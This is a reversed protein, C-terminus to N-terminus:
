LCVEYVGLLVVTTLSEVTNPSPAKSIALQFSRLLSPYSVSARRVIDPRQLKNGLTVLGVLRAAEEVISGPGLALLMPQLASLYGRSVTLDRSM